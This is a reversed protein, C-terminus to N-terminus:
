LGGGRPVRGYGEHLDHEVVARNEPTDLYAFLLPPESLNTEVVCHHCGLDWVGGDSAYRVTVTHPWLAFPSELALM